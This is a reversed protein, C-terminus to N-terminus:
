VGKAKNKNNIYGAVFFIIGAYGELQGLITKQALGKELSYNIIFDDYAKQLKQGQLM